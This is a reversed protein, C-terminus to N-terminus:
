FFLFTSSSLAWMAFFFLKETCLVIILTSKKKKVQKRWSTTCVKIYCYLSQLPSFLVSSAAFMELTKLPDESVKASKYM